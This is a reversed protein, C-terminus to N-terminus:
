EHAGRGLLATALSSDFICRRPLASNLLARAVGRKDGALILLVKKKNFLQILEEWDPARVLEKEFLPKMKDRPIIGKGENDILHFAVDGVANEPLEMKWRKLWDSLFGDRSGASSILLDIAKVKAEYEAKTNADSPRVVAFHQTGGAEYIQALRVSIFNACQDFQNHIEANNLSLFVLRKDKVQPPVPVLRQLYTITDRVTRGGANAIVMEPKNSRYLFEEIETSVLRAAALCAAARDIEVHIHDLELHPFAEVLQKELVRNRPPQLHLLGDKVARQLARRIKVYNDATREWNLSKLISNEALGQEWALRAVRYEFDGVPIDASIQTETTDPEPRVNSGGKEDLDSLKKSRKKGMQKGGGTFSTSRQNSLMCAM